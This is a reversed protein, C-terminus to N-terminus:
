GCMLVCRSDEEYSMSTFCGEESHEFIRLSVWLGFGVLVGERAKPAGSGPEKAHECTGGLGGPGRAEKCPPQPERLAACFGCPHQHDHNMCCTNGEQPTRLRM